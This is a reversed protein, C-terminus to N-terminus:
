LINWLLFNFKNSWTMNPYESSLNVMVNQFYFYTVKYWWVILGYWSPIIFFFKNKNMNIPKITNFRISDKYTIERINLYNWFDWNIYKKILVLILVEISSFLLALKILIIKFSKITMVNGPVIVFEYLKWVLIFSVIYIFQIFCTHHILSSCTLLSSLYVFLPSIINKALGLFQKM